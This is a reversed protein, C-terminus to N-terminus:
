PTVPGRGNRITQAAAAANPAAGPAVAPAEAGAAGNRQQRGHADVGLHAQADHNSCLLGNLTTAASHLDNVVTYAAQNILVTASYRRGDVSTTAAAVQGNHVALVKNDRCALQLAELTKRHYESLMVDATLDSLRCTVLIPGDAGAALTVANFAASGNSNVFMRPAIRVIMVNAPLHLPPSRANYRGAPAVEFHLQPPMYVASKSLVAKPVSPLANGREDVILRSVTTAKVCVPAASRLFRLAGSLNPAADDVRVMTLCITRYLTKYLLERDDLPMAGLDVLVPGNPAAGVAYPTAFNVYTAKYAPHFGDPGKPGVFMLPVMHLPPMDM